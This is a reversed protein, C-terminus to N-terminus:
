PSGFRQRSSFLLVGSVSQPGYESLLPLYNCDDWLVQDHIQPRGRLGSRHPAQAAGLTIDTVIHKEFFFEQRTTTHIQPQQRTFGM